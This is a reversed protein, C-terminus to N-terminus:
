GGMQFPGAPIYAMGPPASPTTGDHATNRVRCQPVWNGNWDAAANWGLHRTTGLTVNSGVAGSLSTSPIGYPFGCGGVGGSPDIALGRRRGGPRLLCGGIENGTVAQTM